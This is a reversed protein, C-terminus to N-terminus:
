QSDVAKVLHITTGGDFSFTVEDMLSNMCHIGRGHEAFLADEFTPLNGPTFGPGSDTVSISIREPSAFCGVTFSSDDSGSHGHRVANTVAEGVAMLVDRLWNGGLGVSEAVKKVRHRAERCCATDSPLTFLDIECAQAALECCQGTCNEESCILDGLLHCNLSKQVECSAESVHLRRQRESLQSASETLCGLAASDISEVDALNLSVCQEHQDLLHDLV